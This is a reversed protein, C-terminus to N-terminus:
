LLPQTNTAVTTMLASSSANRAEWWTILIGKERGPFSPTAVHGTKPLHFTGLNFSQLRDM